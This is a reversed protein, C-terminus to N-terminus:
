TAFSTYPTPWAPRPHSAAVKEDPASAPESRTPAFRQGSLAARAISIPLAAHNTAIRTKPWVVVRAAPSAKTKRAPKM